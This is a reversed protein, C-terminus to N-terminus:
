QVPSAAVVLIFSANPAPAISIPTPALMTKQRRSRRGPM